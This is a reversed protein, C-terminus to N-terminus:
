EGSELPTGSEAINWSGDSKTATWYHNSTCGAPCDGWGKKFRYKQGLELVEIDNGDGIYGDSEAAAIPEALPKLAAGLKQTNMWQDFTLSYYATTGFDGIEKVATARYTTLAADLSAVGTPLTGAKWASRWAADPKLAVTVRKPHADGRASITTLVSDLARIAKLDADIQRAKALEVWPGDSIGAALILADQSLTPETDRTVVDTPSSGGGSCGALVGFLVLAILQRRRM